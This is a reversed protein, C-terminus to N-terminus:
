FAERCTFSMGYVRGPGVSYGFDPTDLRMTAYPAGVTVAANDGPAARVQQVFTMTAEGSGNATVNSGLMLLQGGITAFQGAVLKLGSSGWGDTDIAYGTQGGGKVLPSATIQSTEVASLHFTNAGGQLRALFARWEFVEDRLLPRLSVRAEYYSRGSPQVKSHGTWESVTAQAPQILRWEVTQIKGSPMTILAM